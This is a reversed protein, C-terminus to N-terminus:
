STTRLSQKRAWTVAGPIGCFVARYVVVSALWYLGGLHALSPTIVGVVLTGLMGLLAIVVPSRALKKFWPSQLNKGTVSLQYWVTFLTWGFFVAAISGGTIMVYLMQPGIFVNVIADFNNLFTQPFILARLIDVLLSGMCLKAIEAFIRDVM